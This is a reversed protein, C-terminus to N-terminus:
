NMGKTRDYDFPRNDKAASKMRSHVRLNEFRNHERSMNKDSGLLSIVASHCVRDFLGVVPANKPSGKRSHIGASADHSEISDAGTHASCCDCGIALTVLPPLCGLYTLLSQSLPLALALAVGVVLWV